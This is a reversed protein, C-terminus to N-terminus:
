ATRHWCHITEYPPLDAVGTGTNGTLSLPHNYDDSDTGASGGLSAKWYRAMSATNPNFELQNNYNSVTILYSQSNGPGYDFCAGGSKDLVHTHTGGGGTKGSSDSCLLFKDQVKVWTGGIVESPSTSSYSMYISGVPFVIDLLGIWSM